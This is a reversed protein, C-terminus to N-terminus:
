ASRATTTALAAARICSPHLIQRVGHRQLHALADVLRAPLHLEAGLDEGVVGLIGLMEEGVFVEMRREAFAVHLAARDAHDEAHLGPVKGIVLKGPDGTRMQHGAVTTSTFCAPM